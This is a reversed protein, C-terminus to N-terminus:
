MLEYYAGPNQDIFVKASDECMTGFFIGNALHIRVIRM